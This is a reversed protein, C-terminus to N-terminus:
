RSCHDFSSNSVKIIGIGHVHNLLRLRNSAALISCELGVEVVTHEDIIESTGAVDCAVVLKLEVLRSL